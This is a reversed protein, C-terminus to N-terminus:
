VRRGSLIENLEADTIDRGRAAQITARANARADRVTRFYEFRAFEVSLEVEQTASLDVPRGELVAATM